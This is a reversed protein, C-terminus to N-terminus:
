SKSTFKHYIQSCSFLERINIKMYKRLINHNGTNGTQHYARSEYVAM